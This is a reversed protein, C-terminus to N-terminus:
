TLFTRNQMAQWNHYCSVSGKDLKRGIIRELIPVARGATIDELGIIHMTKHQLMTGHDTMLQAYQEVTHINWGQSVTHWVRDSHVERFRQAAWLAQAPDQVTIGLFRHQRQVHYDIDHSPVSAYIGAVSELYADKAQDDPFDQPRKLRMREPPLTMKRLALDFGAGTPDIMATILDGCTGGM